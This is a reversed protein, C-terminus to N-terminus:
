VPLALKSQVLEVAVIVDIVPVPVPVVAPSVEIVL